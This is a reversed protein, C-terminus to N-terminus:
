WSTFQNRTRYQFYPNIANSLVRFGPQPSLFTHALRNQIAHRVHRDSDIGIRYNGWGVYAAGLRYQKGVEKVIGFKYKEGYEGISSKSMQWYDHPIVDSLIDSSNYSTKNDYYSSEFREGTFLNFGASFEGITLNVAATRLRDHNDGLTHGFPAGDNEYSLSFDGSQFRVIGTQQQHLGKWMNTGLMFGLNGNKGEFGAMLSKRYEWGSKGSGQHAGYNMIGIGASIAFDGSRFTASINAGFGWGKGIAISPSFNFDFNGISINWSPLISSIAQGGMRYLTGAASSFIGPNMGGSIAGTLAGGFFAKAFGGWNWNSSIVASLVYSTAGVIAGAIAGAVVGALVEGLIPTLIAFFFIEGSPDNYMLPNNLM